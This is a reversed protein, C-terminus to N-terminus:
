GSMDLADHMAGATWGEVPDLQPPLGFHPRQAAWAAAAACLVADLWDATGDEVLRKRLAARLQVRVGMPHTGDELARM